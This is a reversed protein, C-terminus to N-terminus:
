DRVGDYIEPLKPPEPYRGRLKAIMIRLKLCRPSPGAASRAQPIRPAGPEGVHAIFYERDKSRVQQRHIWFCQGLCANPSHESGYINRDVTVLPGFYRHLLISLLSQDHLQKPVVAKLNEEALALSLAEALLEGGKGEKCLGFLGSNVNLLTNEEEASTCLTRKLAPCCHNAFWTNDSRAFYGLREVVNFVEPFPRLAWVGADMWIFSRCPAHHWAWVKWTMHRRWHPCFEPVGICPIGKKKLIERANQPLGIDFVLVPPHEPWNCDLSGILALMCDAYSASAGTLICRELMQTQGEETKGNVRM